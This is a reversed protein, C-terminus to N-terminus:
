LIIVNNLPKYFELDKSKNINRTRSFLISTYLADNFFVTQATKKLQTQGIDSYSVM